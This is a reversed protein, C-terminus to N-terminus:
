IARSAAIFPSFTLGSRASGYPQVTLYAEFYTVDVSEARRDAPMKHVARGRLSTGGQKEAPGAEQNHIVTAACPFLVGLPFLLLIYVLPVTAAAPKFARIKLATITRKWLPNHIRQPYSHVFSLGGDEVGPAPRGNNEQILARELAADGGHPTASRRSPVPRHAVGM